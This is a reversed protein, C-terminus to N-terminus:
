LNALASAARNRNNNRLHEAGADNYGRQQAQAEEQKRRENIRAREYQQAIAAHVDTVRIWRGEETRSLAYALTSEPAKPDGVTGTWINVVWALMESSGAIQEYLRDLFTAQGETLQRAEGPTADPAPRQDRSDFIIHDGEEVMAARFQTRGIEKVLTQAMNELVARSAFEGTNALMTNFDDDFNIMRAAEQQTHEPTGEAANLTFRDIQADFDDMDTMDFPADTMNANEQFNYAAQHNQQKFTRQTM